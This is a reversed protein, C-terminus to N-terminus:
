HSTAVNSSLDNPDGGDSVNGDWRNRISLLTPSVSMATEDVSAVPEFKRDGVRLPMPQQPRGPYLREALESMSLREGTPMYKGPTLTTVELFADVATEVTIWMRSCNTVQIPLRPGIADWLEVVSGTSRLVNVLRLVHGGANLVLREAILKSAGYCTLADAAKCTSALVIPVGTEVMRRTGEINLSATTYPDAEGRDAYKHAALHYIVDPVFGRIALACERSTVDQDIDIAYVVDGRARLAEVLVKGIFGESGTVVSRQSTTM